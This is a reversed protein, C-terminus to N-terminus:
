FILSREVVNSFIGNNRFQTWHESSWGQPDSTCSAVSARGPSNNWQLLSNVVAEKFSHMPIYTSRETIHSTIFPPCGVIVPKKLSGVSHIWCIMLMYRCCNPCSGRGVGVELTNKCCNRFQLQLSYHKMKQAHLRISLSLCSLHFEAM